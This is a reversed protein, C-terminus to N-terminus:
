CVQLVRFMGTEMHYLIHCHFAWNGVADIDVDVCVKEGPKVIITHKRPNFEGNGNQLYMWLGHLHMPHEMMTHNIFVFRIREGLKAKIPEEFKSSWKKGDYSYMRWVYREMNGVLHIDIQRDPKKNEYPYLSKLDAYTLVKHPQNELGIGAEKLRCRPNKNIMAAEVGLDNPILLPNCDSCLDNKHHKHKKMKMHSHGMKRDVIKRRPPIPATLNVDPTLTARAFGSRDITEAFITYAKNEKPEVIVDYTEAIGIRFEDVEVPQINQGDAQVVKMKLNPIRIDFITSSSANIFRLRIKDGLNFLFKTNEEPTFGNILYTYTASTIDSIDRPSMRMRAWMLRESIANSFGKKKIDEFFDFITRRQYNYYGGWKKLKALVDYPNEFTWDSLLVVYDKNYDFPEREKPEIILAGYLGLQEQLGTHSHYWYTGNQKVPFRYTFSSKPPIGDFTLGPVGDMNNPLIIGHWHISTPENMENIVKIIVDKGEKWVLTPAPFMGNTTIPTGEKYGIPLSDKKIVLEYSIYEETEKRDIIKIGREASFVPLNKSLFTYGGLILSSKIINRRSINM